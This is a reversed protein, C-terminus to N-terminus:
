RGSEWLIYTVWFEGKRPEGKGVSMRLAKGVFGRKGPLSVVEEKAPTWRVREEVLKPSRVWKPVPLNSGQCRKLFPGPHERGRCWWGIASGDPGMLYFVRSQKSRLDDLIRCAACLPLTSKGPVIRGCRQCWRPDLGYAPYLAIIPTDEIIVARAYGITMAVESVNANNPRCRKRVFAVIPFNPHERLLASLDRPNMSKRLTEKWHPMPGPNPKTWPSRPEGLPKKPAM